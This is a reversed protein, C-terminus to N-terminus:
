TALALSNSRNPKIGDKDSILPPLTLQCKQQNLSTYLSIDDLVNQVDLEELNSLRSCTHNSEYHIKHMKPTSSSGITYGSPHNAGKSDLWM